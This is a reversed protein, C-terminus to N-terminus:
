EDIYNLVKVKVTQIIMDAIEIIEFELNKYRLKQNAEPFDGIQEILWGNVTNSEFEEDDLLNFYKMLKSLPTEGQVIYTDDAFPKIYEIQEDHEDYIEGVLEELIDEMTIIGLTGGYEDLVIAMHVKEKQMQKLLKSIKVHSTVFYPKQLIKEIQFSKSDSLKYFDKEHIIGVISDIEKEYVPLRSFGSDQFKERIEKTDAYKEIAVINVRPVLIDSVDLDDFEIVSRILKTEEQKLTGDEQAEEVM